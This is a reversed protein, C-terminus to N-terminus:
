RQGGQGGVGWLILWEIRQPPLCDLLVPDCDGRVSLLSPLGIRGRFLSEEVAERRALHKEGDTPQPVPGSRRFLHEDGGGADLVAPDGPPDCAVNASYGAVFLTVDM